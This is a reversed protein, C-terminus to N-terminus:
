KGVSFLEVLHQDPDFIYIQVPGDPRKQPGVQITIGHQVLFEAAVDADDVQFAFHHGRSLRGVQRNAWGPLGSDEDSLTVHIQTTGSQFWAGPFDFNPRPVEKMGLLDVYFHHSAAIDSVVLTQHDIAGVNLSNRNNGPEGTNM